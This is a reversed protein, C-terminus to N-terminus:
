YFNEVIRRRLMSGISPSLREIWWMVRAYSPFVITGTNRRIGRFIASAAQDPSIAPTLRSLSTGETMTTRVNGPCAVSVKVGYRQAESRLAISLGLIASKSTIYPLHLPAYCLAGLSSINVIHGFGQKKMVLYSAMTGAIVGSVNVDLVRQWEEHDFEHSAGRSIIAANNIMYALHRHKQAVSSVLRSVEPEHSVDLFATESCEGKANLEDCLREARSSDVDAIVVFIGANAMQRCLAAGIGSAGGTIIAVSRSLPDLPKDAM